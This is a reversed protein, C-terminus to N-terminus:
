ASFGAYPCPRPASRRCRREASMALMWWIVFLILKLFNHDRFPARYHERLDDHAHVKPREPQNRLLKLSYLGIIGALAFLILFGFSIHGPNFWDGLGCSEVFWSAVAGRKGAEAFLDIFFGFLYGALTGALTLIQTRISFFRGRIRLPIGDSIWAIWMNVSVAQLGASILCLVLFVWIGSSKSFFGAQQYFLFPIAGFLFVTGRGWLAYSITKGKRSSLHHTVWLGLPQFVQAFQGIAALIGLQLNSAELETAFKITFSGGVMAVILFIQAYIGEHVSTRITHRLFQNKPM